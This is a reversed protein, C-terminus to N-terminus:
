FFKSPPHLVRESTIPGQQKGKWCETEAVISSGKSMQEFWCTSSITSHYKNVQLHQVSSSERRAPHLQETLFEKPAWRPSLYLLVPESHFCCQAASSSHKCCMSCSHGKGLVSSTGACTALSCKSCEDELVTGRRPLIFGTFVVTYRSFTSYYFLSPFSAGQPRSSLKSLLLSFHLLSLNALCRLHCILLNLPANKSTM